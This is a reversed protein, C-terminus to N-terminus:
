RAAEPSPLWGFTVTVGRHDSGVPPGVTRDLAVFHKSHLVTDIPIGLIGLDMLWEAQRGGFWTPRYGFGESSDKLTAGQLLHRLPYGWRTSNFDGSVLVPESAHKAFEFLSVFFRNRMLTAGSSMPPLTHVGVFQVVTQPLRIKTFISPTVSGGFRKSEAGELPFRSFLAAGFNDERPDAFRFPYDAAVAELGKM